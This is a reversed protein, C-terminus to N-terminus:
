QPFQMLISRPVIGWDTYHVEIDPIRDLIDWMLLLGIFIRALSLSRVDLGFSSEKWIHWYFITKQKFSAVSPAIPSPLPVSSTSKSKKNRDTKKM